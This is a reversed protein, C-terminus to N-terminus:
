EKRGVFRRGIRKIVNLQALRNEIKFVESVIRYGEENEAAVPGLYRYLYPAETESLSQFHNQLASWMAEVSHLDHDHSDQWFAFDGEHQILETVFSNEKTAIARCSALLRVISYFWEATVRDIEAWAFEEVIVLGHPSLLRYAQTVAEALPQIHHLSRAWLVVDFPEDTFAPWVAVSAEVGLARTQQVSEASEDIAVLDYGLGQLRSAILGHGCGVDLIRLPPPPLHTLVFSVTQEVALDEPHM